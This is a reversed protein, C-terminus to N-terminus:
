KFRGFMFENWKKPDQIAEAVKEYLSPHTQEGPTASVDEMGSLDDPNWGLDLTFMEAAEEATIYGQDIMRDLYAQVDEVDDYGAAQKQIRYYNSSKDQYKDKSSGGSGGGSSTKSSSAYKAATAAKSAALDAAFQQDSQSRQKAFDAALAELEM